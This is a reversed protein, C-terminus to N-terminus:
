VESRLCKCEPEWRGAERSEALACKWCKERKPSLGASCRPGRLFAEGQRGGVAERGDTRLGKVGLFKGDTRLESPGPAQEGADRGGGGM